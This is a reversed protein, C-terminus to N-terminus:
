EATINPQKYGRISFPSAPISNDVPMQVDPVYTIVAAIVVTVAFAASHKMDHVHSCKALRMMEITSYWPIVAGRGVRKLAM